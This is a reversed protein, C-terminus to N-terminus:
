ESDNKDGTGFTLDIYPINRLRTGGDPMWRYGNTDCINNIQQIEKDTLFAVNSATVYASLKLAGRKNHFHIIM